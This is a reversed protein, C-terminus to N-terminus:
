KVILKKVSIKDQNKMKVIYLGANMHDVTVSREVHANFYSKGSADLINVTSPKNVQITVSGASPNPFVSLGAEDDPNTEESSAIRAGTASSIRWWNINWGGATAFIGFNYTGANINVTRSITQWTQWGGTNPIAITGLQTTGSNLDQSLVGTSNPSAVRYELKYSGTSPITINNYKLWDNTDIYGVNSGGGADTTTETQVGLMENYSEAQVTQTFGPNSGTISFWNINFGGAAATIAIDQQGATLQVTHSITQWTQWGGTAAVALTGYTAGGGLKELRISGGGNASAVRYQVTYTGSSPVNVRYGLYDNADIWGVNQGGGADSTAETQIGSMTCYNEAQITAPLSTYSGSCGVPTTGIQYVRVYDVFMTAPLRSEDVTQGPWDGAVAVNLLIFFPLHFEGTSNVSNAISAQHYQAGDVFWTIASADWTVSFTHYVDQTTTVNGGYSVHGNNDWHITGYNKNDTNVQEMIDIEGCAPWGTGSSINAGLMWFAPWLGQGKPVKISAEIKGYKWTKKGNTIMRSSTYPNSGVTQKKATILLNGNSVTANAAQYYQKENNGWGGGGTEFVWDPGITSTFEDSWVLQYSQAQANQQFLFLLLVVSKLITIKRMM